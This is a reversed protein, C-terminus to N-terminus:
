RLMSALAGRIEPQAFEFGSAELRAPIARTSALFAEEAADKFLLSLAFAPVPFVVPRRLTAGLARTFDRNTVPAPSTVNCPGQTSGADLLRVLAAVADDLAVWSMWQSGSSLPGGLGLRFPLLMTGLAGGRPSLVVGFRAHATRIGADRAPQAAAEWRRCVEALFGTGSPSDETMIDGGRDGYFGVASACVLVAPRPTLAAATRAILATGEERSRLIREKKAPTWRGFVPEGALHVIADCGTLAAADITGAAPDWQASGVRAQRSVPVITDGRGRLADSLASGVLGSAGTIAIRRAM